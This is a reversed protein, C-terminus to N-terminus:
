HITGLNMVDFDTIRLNALLQSMDSNHWPNTGDASLGLRLGAQGYSGGLSGATDTLMMGYTKLQNCVKNAQPYSSASPCAYSAHLRLRAGYPLKNTCNHGCSEANTAPAVWGGIGYTGSSPGGWIFGVIHNISPQSLDEGYDTTGLMPVGAADIAGGDTSYQNNFPYHLNHVYGNSATYSSGNWSQSGYRYTEYDVCTNTNLVVNHCDYACGISGEQRFGSQWPLQNTSDDNYPDNKMTTGQVTVKSTSNTALNVAEEGAIGSAGAGYNFSLNPLASNMNSIIAASNPDVQNSVYSSGGSVLNTTFWDNAAYV